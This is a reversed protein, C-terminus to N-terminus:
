RGGGGPANGVAPWSWSTACGSCQSADASNSSRAFGKPSLQKKAFHDAALKFLDKDRRLESNEKRLRALEQLEESNHASQDV